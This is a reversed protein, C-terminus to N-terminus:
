DTRELKFSLVTQRITVVLYIPQLSFAKLPLDHTILSFKSFTKFPEIRAKRSLKSGEAKLRFVKYNRRIMPRM